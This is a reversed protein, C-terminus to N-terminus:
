LVREIEQKLKEKLENSMPTLPLRTPGAEFGIINMAEKVPIPNIDSFLLKVLQIYKIQAKASAATNGQFYDFCIKHTQSPILNSLVSIVGKAGLSLFPVIQDDNGSYFALKDECLDISQALAGIDGNAEKVAVINPHKALEKYTEPKINVGTRSPVNYLIIPLEARDAIYNYHAILGNQSAKNYFPTVMLLADAGAETANKALVVARATDNSGAGAIIPVRKDAQKAVTRIIEIHEDYTVTASEGTTGCAVLADIGNQIQNETLEKLKEYNITGDSHMPTILATAAGQFIPKKM